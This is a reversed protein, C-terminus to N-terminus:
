SQPMRVISAATAAAARVVRMISSCPAADTRFPNAAAFNSRTSDSLAAKDASARKRADLVNWM